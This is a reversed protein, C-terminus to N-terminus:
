KGAFVVSKAAMTKNVKIIDKERRPNFSYRSITDGTKTAILCIDYDMDSAKVYAFLPPDDTNNPPLLGNLVTFSVNALAASKASMYRERNMRIKIVLDAGVMRGVSDAPLTWATRLDAMKKCLLNNVSDISMLEVPYQRVSREHINKYDLFTKVMEAQLQLSATREATYWDDREPKEGSYYVDAPLVAMKGGINNSSLYKSNIYLGSSGCSCAFTALSILLIPLKTKM